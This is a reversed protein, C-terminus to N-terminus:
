DKKGYLTSDHNKPRAGKHAFHRANMAFTARKREAPDKSAKARELESMTLKKGQKVGLNRHLKGKNAPNIDIGSM